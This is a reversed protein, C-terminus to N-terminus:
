AADEDEDFDPYQPPADGRSELVRPYPEGSDATIESLTLRVRWEDGFDFLYAIAQGRKLRLRGLKAAASKPAPSTAFPGLVDADAHFPHTYEGGDVGWFEGKLWFSYLHDDDWGFADQLVQHLDILSQDSRVAVKRSVGRFGVLKADFVYVQKPM